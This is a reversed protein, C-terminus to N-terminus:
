KSKKEDKEKPDKLGKKTRYYKVFLDLQPPWHEDLAYDSFDSKCDRALDLTMIWVDENMETLKSEDKFFATYDELTSLKGKLLIGLIDLSTEMPAKKKHIKIM